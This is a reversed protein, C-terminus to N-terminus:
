VAFPFGTQWTLVADAGSRNGGGRLTSLACRTTGNLAQALTVLAEARAPDAPTPGPEGDAVIAVYRAETMRRALDIAPEFRAVAGAARGQVAARMMELTDVEDAVAIAVRGDTDSPGRSEGVDVA